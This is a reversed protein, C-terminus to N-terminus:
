RSTRGPVRQLVGAGPKIALIAGIILAGTREGLFFSAVATLVLLLLLASRFQRALVALARAHHTRVANPGIETLRRVAEPSALGRLTSSLRELVAALPLSAAEPM